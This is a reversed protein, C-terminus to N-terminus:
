SWLQDYSFTILLKDEIAHCRFINALIEDPLPVFASNIYTYVRRSASHASDDKLFQKQLFDTVMKFTQQSSIKVKNQNLNPANGASKFQIIIKEPCQQLELPM